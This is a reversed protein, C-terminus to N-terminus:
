YPCHLSAMPFGFLLNSQIGFINPNQFHSAYKKVTTVNLLQGLFSKQQEVETIKTRESDSSYDSKM